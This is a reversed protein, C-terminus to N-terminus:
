DRDRNVLAKNVPAFYRNLYAGIMIIYMCFYMWLLVIIIISLSGYIGYSNGYTVYYSFAWSFVSWVVASFVAGPIQERFALKKDPVYAYVAAFLVSLVAWVFIFRFNMIFSVLQKLQPIRHLMLNVLQDGFVMLFLSLVMVILMVITYFSAIVRVVFYNRNEEVGNIANLGRMLAMVGKSASWLTAILAISLVGASNKYIDSILSEALGDVQDPTLDTVAEVLNEETLPTYPIITCVMILMPVISLFFFFATSAAFTSINQKKM